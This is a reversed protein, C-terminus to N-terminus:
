AGAKKPAPKKKAAKKSAPKKPARTKPAEAASDVEREATATESAQSAAKPEEERDASERLQEGAKVLTDGLKKALPKCKRLVVPVAAVAAVAVAARTLIFLGRIPVHVM